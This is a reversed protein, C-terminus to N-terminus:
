HRHLVNWSPAEISVWIAWNSSIYNLASSVEDYDTDATDEYEWVSQSFQQSLVSWLKSQFPVIKIDLSSLVSCLLSWVSNNVVFNGWNRKESADRPDFDKDSIIFGSSSVDRSIDTSFSDVMLNQCWPVKLNCTFVSSGIYLFSWSVVKFSKVGGCWSGLLYPEIQYSLCTCILM